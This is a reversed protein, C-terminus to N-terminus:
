WSLGPQTKAEPLPVKDILEKTGEITQKKAESVSKGVLKKTVLKVVKQAGPDITSTNAFDSAFQGVLKGTAYSIAQEAAAKGVEKSLVSLLRQDDAIAEEAAEILSNGSAKLLSSAIGTGLAIKGIIAGLPVTIPAAAPFLSIVSLTLGLTSMIKCASDLASAADLLTKGAGQLAKQYIGLATSNEDLSNYVKTPDTQAAAQFSGGKILAMTKKADAKIKAIDKNAQEIKKVYNELEEKQKRAKQEEVGEKKLPNRSFLNKINSISNLVWKSVDGLQVEEIAMIEDYTKQYEKVAQTIQSKPTKEEALVAFPQLLFTLILLISLIKRASKYM